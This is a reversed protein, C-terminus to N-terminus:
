TIFTIIMDPHLLYFFSDSLPLLHISILQFLTPFSLFYLFLFLFYLHAAESGKCVPRRIHMATACSSGTTNFRIELYSNESLPHRVFPTSHQRPLSASPMFHLWHGLAALHLVVFSLHFISQLHSFPHFLFFYVLFSFNSLFFFSLLFSFLFSFFLFSLFFFSSLSVLLWVGVVSYFLGQVRSM